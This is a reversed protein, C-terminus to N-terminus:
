EKGEQTQPHTIPTRCTPCLGSFYVDRQRIEYQSLEDFLSDEIDIRFNRITGCNECRFHGHTHTSADYRTEVGHLNVTRALGSHVLTHLTNYVTALSLSPMEPAIHAFIVEATPHNAAEHLYQLVRVRQYSPRIGHERLMEQYVTTTEEM